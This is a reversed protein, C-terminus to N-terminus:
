FFETPIGDSRPAKDKPMAAIADLIERLTLDRSLEDNMETSVRTSTSSWCEERAETTGLAHVKSTYLSEYFIACM